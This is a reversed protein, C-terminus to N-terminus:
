VPSWSAAAREVRSLHVDENGFPRIERYKNKKKVEECLLKEPTQV